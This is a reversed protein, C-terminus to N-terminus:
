TFPTASNGDGFLHGEVVWKSASLCTYEVMGGVFRGKTDADMVLQHDAAAPVAFASTQIIFTRHWFVSHCGLQTM